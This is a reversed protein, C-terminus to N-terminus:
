CTGTKCDSGISVEKADIKNNDYQESRTETTAAELASPRMTPETMANLAESKM